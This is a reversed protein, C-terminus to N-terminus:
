SVVKGTGSPGKILVIEAKADAKSIRDIADQLVQLQQERGYLKKKADCNLQISPASASTASARSFSERSLSPPSAM